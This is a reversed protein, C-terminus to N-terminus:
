RGSPGFFGTAHCEDIFTLAGYKEALEVIAPLPAVSGDMSFVGDSAILKVRVGAADAEKLQEELDPSILHMKGRATLNMIILSLQLLIHIHYVKCIEISTVTASPKVCDYEMLSPPMISSMLSYQMRQLCSCKLCDQMQMLAVLMYFAIKEEM